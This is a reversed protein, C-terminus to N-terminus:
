PREVSTTHLQSSPFNYRTASSGITMTLETSSHSGSWVRVHLRRYGRQAQDTRRDPIPDPHCHRYQNEGSGTSSHRRKSSVYGRKETSNSVSQKPIWFQRSNVSSKQSPFRHYYSCKIYAEADIVENDHRANDRGFNGQGATGVQRPRDDSGFSTAM